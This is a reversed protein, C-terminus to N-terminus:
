LWTTPCRKNTLLRIIVSGLRPLLRVHHYAIKLRNADFDFKVSSEIVDPRSSIWMMLSNTIDRLRHRVAYMKSFFCGQLSVEHEWPSNAGINRLGECEQRPRIPSQPFSVSLADLPPLSAKIQRHHGAGSILRANWPGLWALSQFNAQFMLFVLMLLLVPPCDLLWCVSIKLSTQSDIPPDGPGSAQTYQGHSSFASSLCPLSSSDM